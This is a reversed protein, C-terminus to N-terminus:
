DTTTEGNTIELQQSQYMNRSYWGFWKPYQATRVVRYVVKGNSINSGAFANATGEVTITDNLKFTETVPKFSTEFKPRKYEEVQITVDYDYDFNYDANDYFNSDHESSEDVNITYEGTLGSNPLIFEGSVSGYENLKLDLKKVLQGNPDELTIEVFENTLLTTKDGQKKIFIGKFYVTQGPRYISRDTFVFPKIEISEEELNDSKRTPYLYLDGFTTKDNKYTVTAVVNNRGKTLYISAQGFKDTKLTKNLPLNYKGTYNNKLHITAGVLPKGNNRNVTQYTYIGNNITEILVIDTVQLIKTAYTSQPNIENFPSTFILYNGNTLQPIVIESSHQQYDNETKLTTNFQNVIQLKKIFNTKEEDNYIKYFQEKEVNSIKYITFYLKEINKYSVLVKSYTNISLYKEATIQLTKNLIQQKLAKCKEAGISKPYANIASNCIEIAKAKKFQNEPTTARNYNNGENYYVTAIKFDILTSAEFPSVENKFNILAKLYIADKNEFIANQKVFQLRELDVMILADMNQTSQHFQVLKQYIKLANFQLSLSDKTELDVTSFEKFNDLLKVENIDFAYSPKTISTENTKYFDLCNHSLFDFLTPRYIKSDKQLNLIDNFEKLDTLQSVLGNKLSNQFHVHIENFLTQLDWTRFDTEDVKESTKTRNYFQWRNQQFYQWYLNALVSELINKTPFKSIVIEDKFLNIIKLQAEEELTMVFKSKYLLAKTTQSTSDEKKAKEFIIDVIALASKPLNDLEFKEVQNWLKGYEIRNDQSFLSISLLFITIVSLVTNKM